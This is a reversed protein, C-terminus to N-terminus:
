RSLKWRLKSEYIIAQTLAVWLSSKHTKHFKSMSEKQKKGHNHRRSSRNFLSVIGEAWWISGFPREVRAIETWDWAEIIKYTGGQTRRCM